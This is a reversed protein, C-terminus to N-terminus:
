IEYDLNEKLFRKMGAKDVNNYKYDTTPIQIQIWYYSTHIRSRIRSRIRGKEWLPTWQEPSQFLAQLFLIKVCFKLM